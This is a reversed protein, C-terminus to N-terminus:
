VAAQAMRGYMMQKKRTIKGAVPREAMAKLERARSCLWQSVKKRDASITTPYTM